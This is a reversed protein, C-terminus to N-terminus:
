YFGWFMKGFYTIFIICAFRLSKDGSSNSSGSTCAVSSEIEFLYFCDTEKENNVELVATNGILRSSCLLMIDAHRHEQGCHSGYTDGDKYTLLMWNTGVKIHTNDIKGITHKEDTNNAWNGYQIVGASEEIPECFKITYKWQDDETLKVGKITEGKLPELIKKYIEEKSSDVTCEGLVGHM